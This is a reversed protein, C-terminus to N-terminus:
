QLQDLLELAFKMPVADYLRGGASPAATAIIGAVLGEADIVPSGAGVSAGWGDVTVFEAAVRSATGTATTLRVRHGQALRRRGPTRRSARLRHHGGAHGARWRRNRGPSDRSWRSGAASRCASSPSTRPSTPPSSRPRRGAAVRRAHLVMSRARRANGQPDVVVQRTTLLVGGTGDRRVGFGTALATSGDAYQAIVFGVAAVSPEGGGQRTSSRRRAIDRERTIASDLRAMIGPSELSGRPSGGGRPLRPPPQGGRAVLRALGAHGARMVQLEAVSAMLSDATALLLLHAEQAERKAVQQRWFFLAASVVLVASRWRARRAPGAPAQPRGSAADRALQGAHEEEMIRNLEEASLAPKAPQFAVPERSPGAVSARDSLLFQLEPGSAGLRLRDGDNLPQEESIRTGNLYTGNISGLDRVTWVGDKQAIVAHRNSVETDQDADLRVRCTAHRGISSVAGTLPEVTGARGGSLIALRPNM